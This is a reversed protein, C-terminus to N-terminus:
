HLLTNTLQFLLISLQDGQQVPQVAGQIGDVHLVKSASAAVLEVQHGVLIHLHVPLTPEALVGMEVAVVTHVMETPVVHAAFQVPVVAAFVAGASVLGRSCRFIGLGRAFLVNHTLRTGTAASCEPARM